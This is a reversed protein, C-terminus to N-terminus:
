PVDEFADQRTKYGQRIRIKVPYSTFGTSFHGSLKYTGPSLHIHALHGDTVTQSAVTAGSWYKTVTITGAYPGRPKPKCPPPPIAGGQIYMGSVVETPGATYVPENPPVPVTPHPCTRAVAEGSPHAAASSLGVGVAGAVSLGILLL